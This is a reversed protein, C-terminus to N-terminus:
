STSCRARLRGVKYGAEHVGKPLKLYGGAEWKDRGMLRQAYHGHNPMNESASPDTWGARNEWRGAHKNWGAADRDEPTVHAGKGGGDGFFARSEM